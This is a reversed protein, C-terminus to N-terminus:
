GWVRAVPPGPYPTAIEPEAPKRACHRAAAAAAAAPPATGRQRALRRRQTGYTSLNPLRAQVRGRARPRQSARGSM